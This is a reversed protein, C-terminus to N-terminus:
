FVPPPTGISKHDDPPHLLFRLDSSMASPARYTGRFVISYDSIRTDVSAFQRSFESCDSDFIKCDAHGRNIFKHVSINLFIRVFFNKEGFDFYRTSSSLYVNDAYYNLNM